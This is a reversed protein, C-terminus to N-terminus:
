QKGESRESLVEAIVKEAEDSLPPVEHESLIQRARENARTFMDKSGAAEWVDYQKRDIIKPEWQATRFNDMTHDDAIFGSGPEARAIVDLALTNKNVLLGEMTFRTMRIIEDAIVLM